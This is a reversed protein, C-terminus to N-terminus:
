EFSGDIIDIQNYDSGICYFRINEDDWRYAKNTETEIYITNKDGTTPFNALTNYTQVKNSASEVKDNLEYIVASSVVSGANNEIEQAIPIYNQITGSYKKGNIYIAPM